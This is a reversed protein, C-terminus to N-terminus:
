FKSIFVLGRNSVILDFFGHHWIVVDLIVKPLRFIDITVQM